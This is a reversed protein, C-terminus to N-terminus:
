LNWLERHFTVLAWDQETTCVDLGESVLTESKQNLEGQIKKHSGGGKANEL